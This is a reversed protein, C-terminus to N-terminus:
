FLAGTTGVANIYLWMAVSADPRWVMKIVFGKKERSKNKESLQRAIDM